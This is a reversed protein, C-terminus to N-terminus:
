NDYNSDGIIANEIVTEVNKATIIKINKKISEPIEETDKLNEEPIIITDIGARYAALSKEKLGGIPLVKGTLTVEGTMAVNARVKRGSLASVLSTVMTVGASPGDKPVAGEPVHIHIDKLKYFDDNIQYKEANARVYSYATKASEQMVEGLKGTLQLKGTGKMVVAEVPLTDGGYATWAMGTVVGIKDEKDVKDYNIRKIGLMENVKDKDVTVTKKNEKLMITMAKRLVNAIERELNRVGSERTYGEIIEKIADDTLVIQQAKLNYEKYLKKVLHNKAIHFKEEYTYGSIEVIEMRDLLPRPVTDLSNATTIFMVKSLDINLEIFNDRFTNNQESDLVELLADAPNGKYDAGLKDIEDLLILPNMSKCQKLAYAIRGPIAAVYTRRHGRIEAEDKMGGLSMRFYNRNIAKAISKAISTKGVGPPGVLCLIPGKLSNSIKKSALYEIIRKKVDELGYHESNLVEEVKKIDLRERTYKKWPIDLLWDLYSQVTNGESSSLQMGKLRSLEYKAKELVEDSAKLNKIKEEYSKIIKTEEDDEGLEEQLLKLQERLYYEKQSDDINQKMKNALKKQVKIISIEDKLCKLLLEIRKCIDLTELIEQKNKEDIPIYSAVMDIFESVDKEENISKIMDPNSEGAENVFNIFVKKLTNFYATVEVSNGKEEEIREISVEFYKTNKYYKKIKGRAIGEVLVRITNGPLKIIQKIKCITGITSIDSIEPEEIELEKQAVLFITEDISMAKDIAAMSKERGVDFHLVMNPFITLGRLPILPLKLINKNM